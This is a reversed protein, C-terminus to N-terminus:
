VRKLVTGVQRALTLIAFGLQLYEAPGLSALATNEGNEDSQEPTAMLALIVGVAAGILVGFLLAKPRAKM